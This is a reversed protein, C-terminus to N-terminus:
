FRGARELEDNDLLEHGHRYNVVKGTTVDILRLYPNPKTNKKNGISTYGKQYLKCYPVNYLYIYEWVQRCKWDIIPNIRMLPPWGSDTMQMVKLDKCYPDTRRCGMFVAKLKPNDNCLEKLAEKIPGKKKIIDINYLNQCDNVFQDIEEFADPDTIYLTPIKINKLCANNQFFKHLMHLVVTCDKGGNFSLLIEDPKYLQFVKHMIELIDKEKEKIGEEVDEFHQYKFDVMDKQNIKPEKSDVKVEM